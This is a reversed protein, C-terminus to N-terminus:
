CSAWANAVNEFALDNHLQFAMRGDRELCPLREILPWRHERRPRLALLVSGALNTTTSHGTQSRAPPGALRSLLNSFAVNMGTGLQMREVDGTKAGNLCM